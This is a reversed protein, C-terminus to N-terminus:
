DIFGIRTLTDGRAYEITGLRQVRQVRIRHVFQSADNRFEPIIVRQLYQYQRARALAGEDGARVDLAHRAPAGNIRAPERLAARPNKPIQFGNSLRRNRRDVSESEPATALHSHRTRNTQRRRVRLEALRFDVQSDDGAVAAGLAQGPEDSHPAGQLYQHRALRYAGLLSKADTQHVLDALRVGQHGLRPRERPFQGGFAAGGEFKDQLRRM